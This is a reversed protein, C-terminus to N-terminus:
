RASTERYGQCEDGDHICASAMRPVFKVAVWISIALAIFASVGAGIIRGDRGASSSYLAAMLAIGLLGIATLFHKWMVNVGPSSANARSM